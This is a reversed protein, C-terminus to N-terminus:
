ECLNHIEIIDVTWNGWNNKIDQYHFPLSLECQKLM